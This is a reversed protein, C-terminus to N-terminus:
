KQGQLLPSSSTSGMKCSKRCGRSTRGRRSSTTPCGQHFGDSTLSLWLHPDCSFSQSRFPSLFMGDGQLGCARVPCRHAAHAEVESLCPRHGSKAQGSWGARKGTPKYFLCEKPGFFRDELSCGPEQEKEKREAAKAGLCKARQESANGEGYGPHGDM